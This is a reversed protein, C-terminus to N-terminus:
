EERVTFGDDEHCDDGMEALDDIIHMLYFRELDYITDSDKPEFGEDRIWAFTAKLIGECYFLEELAGELPEMVRYGQDQM